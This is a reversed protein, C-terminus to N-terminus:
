SSDFAILILSDDPMRAVIIEWKVVPSCRCSCRCLEVSCRLSCSSDVSQTPWRLARTFWSSHEPSAAPYREPEQRKLYVVRPGITREKEPESECIYLIRRLTAKWARLCRATVRHSEWTDVNVRYSVAANDPLRGRRRGIRQGRVPSHPRSLTGYNM